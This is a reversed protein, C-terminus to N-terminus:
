PGAPGAEGGGRVKGLAARLVRADDGLHSYVAHIMRTSTHGVLAAVVSDSLGAGLADTVFGHRFSYPIATPPLGLRARVDRFARGVHKTGNWPAGRRTRFLPGAPYERARAACLAAVRETLHVVRPRGTARGTKHRDRPFVWTRGAPDFEAATVRVVEGPRAGTDLLCVLVAHLDAPAAALIRDRVAAPLLVEPGRAAAPPLAIGATPDAPCLGERVGWRYVVALRALATRRSGPGWGPHGDLVRGVDARGVRAAPTDGLAARFPKTTQATVRLTLPALRGAHAALWRDLLAALPLGAAPPPAPDGAAAMLAHYARFAAKKDPGLNHRVGAVTVTWVGRDARYWPRPPRAM